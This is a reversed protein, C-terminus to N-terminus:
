SSASTYFKLAYKWFNISFVFFVIAITVGVMMLSFPAIGLLAQAPVTTLFAVPLLFTLIPRLALPYASIPYRGSILVSRLVENANWIKVFWISTSAILFWLSYLIILGCIFMVFSIILSLENVYYNGKVLGIYILIIGVILSPLGYPSFTRFSLWLQSNVPKLLVFDLTGNQVQKVIRSLNPQLFSITFSEILTYFGLIILSSHWPWGGLTNDATYFMSLVFLSGALNGITSLIEVFLNLKYELEISLSTSWFQFLIRLYKLIINIRLM